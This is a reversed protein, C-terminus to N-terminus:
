NIKKTVKISVFNGGRVNYKVEASHMQTISQLLKDNNNCIVFRFGRLFVAVDAKSEVCNRLIFNFFSCSSILRPHIISIRRHCRCAVRQTGVSNKIFKGGSTFM